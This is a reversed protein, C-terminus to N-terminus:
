VVSKRDPNLDVQPNEQGQSFSTRNKEEVVLKELSERAQGMEWPGENLAGVAKLFCRHTGTNIEQRAGM